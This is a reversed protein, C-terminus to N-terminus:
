CHAGPAAVARPGAQLKTCLYNKDAPERAAAMVLLRGAITMTSGSNGQLWRRAEYNVGTVNLLPSARHRILILIRALLGLIRALLVLVGTLLGALLLAAALLGALLLLVRITLTLVGILIALETTFQAFAPFDRRFAPASLRSKRNSFMIAVVPLAAPIGTRGAGGNLYVFPKFQGGCNLRTVELLGATGTRLAAPIAPLLM